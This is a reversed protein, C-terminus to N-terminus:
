TKLIKELIGPHDVQLHAIVKSIWPSPRMYRCNCPFFYTGKSESFKSLHSELSGVNLYKKPHKSDKTTCNTEYCHINKKCSFYKEHIVNKMKKLHNITDRKRQERTQENAATPNGLDESTLELSPLLDITPHSHSQLLNHTVPGIEAQSTTSAIFPKDLLFPFNPSDPLELISTSSPEQNSKEKLPNEALLAPITETSTSSSSHSQNTARTTELIQAFAKAPKKPAPQGSNEDMSSLLSSQPLNQAILGNQDQSSIPYTFADDLFSLDPSDPLELISTSSPQSTSQGSLFKELEEEVLRKLLDREARRGAEFAKATLAAITQESLAHATESSIAHQAPLSPAVQISIQQHGPTLPTLPLYTQPQTAQQSSLGHQYGYPHFQNHQYVPTTRDPYSVVMQPQVQPAPMIQSYHNDYFPMAQYASPKQPQQYSMHLPAIQPCPTYYPTQSQPAASFALPQGSQYSMHFPAIQQQQPQGYYGQTSAALPACPSQSLPTGPYMSKTSQICLIFAFIYRIVM